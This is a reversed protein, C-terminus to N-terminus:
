LMAAPFWPWEAHRLDLGIGLLTGAVLIMAFQLDSTYKKFELLTFGYALFLAVLAVSGPVFPWSVLALVVLLTGLATFPHLRSLM